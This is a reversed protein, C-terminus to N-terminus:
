DSKNMAVYTEDLHCLQVMPADDGDMYYLSACAILKPRDPGAAILLAELDEMDNHRFIQRECGAQRVGEIM